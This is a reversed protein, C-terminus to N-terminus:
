QGLVAPAHLQDKMELGLTCPIKVLEALRGWWVTMNM